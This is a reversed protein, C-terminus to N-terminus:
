PDEGTMSHGWLILSFTKVTLGLADFFYKFYDGFDTPQHSEHPFQM